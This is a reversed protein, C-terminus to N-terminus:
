EDTLEKEAIKTRAEKYQRMIEALYLWDGKDSSTEPCQNM